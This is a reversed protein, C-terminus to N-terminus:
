CEEYAFSSAENCWVVRLEPANSVTAYYALGADAASQAGYAPRNYTHPSATPDVATALQNSDVDNVTYTFSCQTTFDGASGGTQSLLIPFLIPGPPEFEFVRDGGSDTALSPKLYVVRGLIPYDVESAAWGGRIRAEGLDSHTLGGSKVAWQANGSNNDLVEEFQFFGDSTGYATIRVPIGYDARSETFEPEQWAGGASKGIANVADVLANLKERFSSDYISEGSEFRKLETM